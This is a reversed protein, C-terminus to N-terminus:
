AARAKDFVDPRLEHRKVRGRTAKEVALVRNPPCRSWGCVSQVTIGLVRALEAAGGALELARELAVDRKKTM